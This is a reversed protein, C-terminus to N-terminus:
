VAEKAKIFAKGIECLIDIATVSSGIGAIKRAIIGAHSHLWTGFIAAQEAPTGQALLEGIVGSLVDGSGATALAADSVPNIYINATQTAVVSVAGKLILNVGWKEAYYQAIKWRDSQIESVALGTLIAMEGPDPTLIARLSRRMRPPPFM